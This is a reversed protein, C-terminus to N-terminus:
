SSATVELDLENCNFHKAGWERAARFLRESPADTFPIRVRAPEGNHTVVFDATSFQPGFQRRHLKGDIEGIWWKQGDDDWVMESGFMVQNTIPIAEFESQKM